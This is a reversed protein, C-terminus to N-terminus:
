AHVFKKLLARVGTLEAVLAAKDHALSIQFRRLSYLNAPKINTGSITTVAADSVQAVTSEDEKDFDGSTGNPYSFLPRQAGTWQRIDEVSGLIKLNRRARSENALICHSRTHAGVEILDFPLNAMEPLSMPRLTDYQEPRVSSEVLPWHQEVTATVEDVPRTKHFGPEIRDSNNLHILRLKDFTFLRPQRVFDTAVFITAPTRHKQLVPAALYLNNAYGDDFTVAVARRALTGEVLQRIGARLSVVFAHDQLWAIHREFETRCVFCSPVWPELAYEDACVGHYTLIRLGRGVLGFTEVGRAIAGFLIQKALM